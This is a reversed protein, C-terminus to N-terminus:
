RNCTRYLTPIGRRLRPRAPHFHPFLIAEKRLTNWPGYAPNQRTRTVRWNQRETQHPLPIDQMQQMFSAVLAMAMRSTQQLLL